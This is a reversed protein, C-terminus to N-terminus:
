DLLEKDHSLTDAFILKKALRGDNGVTLEKLNRCQEHTCITLSLCVRKGDCDGGDLTERERERESERERVRERERERERNIERKKESNFQNLVQTVAIRLRM